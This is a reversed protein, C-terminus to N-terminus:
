IVVSSLKRNQDFIYLLNEITINSPVVEYHNTESFINTCESVPEDMAIAVDRGEKIFKAITDVIMKRNIVGILTGSIYVPIISYGMRGMQYVVEKLTAEESVTYVDTKMITSIKKNLENKTTMYVVGKKDYEKYMTYRM